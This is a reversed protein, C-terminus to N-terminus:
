DDRTVPDAVRPRRYETHDLNFAVDMFVGIPPTYLYSSETMIISAGAIMMGAPIAVSDGPSLPSMGHGESWIVEAETASVINVSTVRLSMPTPSNPFMLADAAVWLDDVEDDTIIVDRAVIDAISAAVNEARRNTALAETLEVTGFLVLLMLPAIIAFEVAAIGRRDRAFSRIMGM